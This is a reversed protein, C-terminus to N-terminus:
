RGKSSEKLVKLIEASVDDEFVGRAFHGAKTFYDGISRTVKTLTEGSDADQLQYTYM